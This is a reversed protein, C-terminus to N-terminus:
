MNSRWGLWSRYWFSSIVVKEDYTHATVAFICHQISNTICYALSSISWESCHLPFIEVSIVKGLKTSKTLFLSLILVRPKVSHKFSLELVQTLILVDIVVCKPKTVSVLWSLYTSIPSLLSRATSQSVSTEGTSPSGICLLISSKISSSYLESFPASPSPDTVPPYM